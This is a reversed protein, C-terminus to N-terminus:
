SFVESSNKYCTDIIIEPDINTVKSIVMAVFGILCPENRSKILPSDKFLESYQFKDFKDSKVIPIPLFDHLQINTNSGKKGQKSNTILQKIEVQETVADYNEFDDPYFKNPSKSLYKWSPHTRKIECWPSDTEIMLKHLPIHPIMELTSEDRLGAGNISFYFNYDPVIQQFKLLKELEERTGTFSHILLNKNTLSKNLLFPKLISIFDDCAARMHLFLPLNFKTALNLQKEFYLKQKDMPTYHLRDYDLGIEGFAKVVDLNDNILNELQNLHDQVTYNNSEFETVTCPHVGVTSFLKPIEPTDKLSHLIQLTRRSESLSSGTLLIKDVHHRYAKQLVDISDNRHHKRGHYNGSFMSDTINVGVDYYRPKFLNQSTSM